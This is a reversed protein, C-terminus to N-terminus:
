TPDGQLVLWPEDTMFKQPQWARWEFVEGSEGGANWFLAAGMVRLVVRGESLDVRGDLKHRPRDYEWSLQGSLETELALTVQVGLISPNGARAYGGISLGLKLEIAASDVRRRPSSTPARRGAGPDERYEASPAGALSLDGSAILGIDPIWDRVEPPLSDLKYFPSLRAELRWRIGVRVTFMSTWYANWDRDEERWGELHEISAFGAAEGSVHLRGGLAGKLLHSIREVVSKKLEGELSAALVKATSPFVEITLSTAQGECGEGSLTFVTPVTRPGLDEGAFALDFREAPQVVADVGPGALLLQHTGTCPPDTRVRAWQKAVGGGLTAAVISASWKRDESPPRAPGHEGRWARMAERLEDFDPAAGGGDLTIKLGFGGGVKKTPAPVVQLVRGPGIKRYSRRERAELMEIEVARCMPPPAVPGGERSGKADPRARGEAEPVTVSYSQGDLDPFVVTCIGPDIGDYRALGAADLRGERVSGDTLTLQYRAGAAPRPPDTDWELQIAIWTKTEAIPAESATPEAAREEGAGGGRTRSRLEGWALRGEREARAVLSRAADLDMPAHADLAEALVRLRLRALPSPREGGLLDDSWRASSGDLRAEPAPLVTVEVVGRPGEVRWRFRDSM